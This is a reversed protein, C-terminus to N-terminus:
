QKSNLYEVLEAVTTVPNSERSLIETHEAQLAAVRKKARDIAAEQLPKLQEYVEKNKEYQELRGKKKLLKIVAECNEVPTTQNNFHLLFWVEFSPNSFAIQYGEKIAMQKAKSLMANTNDDRDFVCWIIDGEDPYYPSYGITARAKQVLKDASKYQSPIPVIDINCERSRFKKFYRIETESGECILYVVPNRKRRGSAKREIEKIRGMESVGESLRFQVM